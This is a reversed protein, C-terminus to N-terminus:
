IFFYVKMENYEHILKYILANSSSIKLIKDLENDKNRLEKLKETLENLNDKIDRNDQEKGENKEIIKIYQINLTREPFDIKNSFVLM